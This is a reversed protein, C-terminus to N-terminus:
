SSKSASRSKSTPVGEDDKRIEDVSLDNKGISKSRSRSKERSLQDLKERRDKIKFENIKMPKSNIRAKEPPEPLLRNNTSLIATAVTTERALLLAETSSSSAVPKATMTKVPETMRKINEKAKAAIDLLAAMQKEDPKQIDLPEDDM